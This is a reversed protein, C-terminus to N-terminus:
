LGGLPTVRMKLRKIYIIYIIVCPHGLHPGRVAHLGGVQKQPGQVKKYNSLFM